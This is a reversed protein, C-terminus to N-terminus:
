DEEILQSLVLALPERPVDQGTLCHVQRRVQELLLDAPAVVTCGRREAELALSSKRPISTLDMVVLGAKLNGPHISDTNEEDNTAAADPCVIVADHLTSYIGEYQIQRGGLMRSFRAAADRDRSAFILKGGREKIARALTRATANLGAMMIMASEISKGASKLALELAAVAGPGFTHRGQWKKNAGSTIVDVPNEVPMGGSNLTVGEVSADISGAIERLADQQEEEIVVGQLKVADIVKRFLRVSGVQLPLCRINLQLHAFAANLMATTLYEREGVGTM